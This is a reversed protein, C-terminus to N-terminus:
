IVLLTMYSLDIARKHKGVIFNNEERSKYIIECDTKRLKKWDINVKYKKNEEIYIILQTIDQKSVLFKRNRLKM